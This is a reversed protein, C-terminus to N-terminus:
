YFEICYAVLRKLMKWDNFNMLLKGRCTLKEQKFFFVISRKPHSPPPTEGVWKFFISTLNSGKGLNGPTFIGFFMHFWCSSSPILDVPQNRQHRKLCSTALWNWLFGIKFVPFRCWSFTVPFPHSVSLLWRAGYFLCPKLCMWTKQLTWDDVKQIQLQLPTFNCPWRPWTPYTENLSRTKCFCSSSKSSRACRSIM